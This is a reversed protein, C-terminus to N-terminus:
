IMYFKSRASFHWYTLNLSMSIFQQKKNNLNNYNEGSQRGTQLILGFNIFHKHLLHETIVYRSLHIKGNKYM